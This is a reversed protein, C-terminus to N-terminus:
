AQDDSDCGEKFKNAMHVLTDVFGNEFQEYAAKGFPNGSGKKTLKVGYNYAANGLKEKDVFKVVLYGLLPVIIANVVLLLISGWDM